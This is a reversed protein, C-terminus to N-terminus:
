LYKLQPGSLRLAAVVALLFSAETEERVGHEKLKEALEAYTMDARKLEVKIFRATRDVIKKETAALGLLLNSMICRIHAIPFM